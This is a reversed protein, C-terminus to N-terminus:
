RGKINFTPRRSAILEAELARRTRANVDPPFVHYELVLGAKGYEWLWRALGKNDSHEIHKAIRSQLNRSEGIYLVSKSAPDVFLYLGGSMPITSIDMQEVSVIRIDPAPLVQAVREPRLKRLKRLALAAWRYQLPTYGPCLKAAIKDFEAAKSPSCIVDDLTSEDRRELFRIAIESAFQYEEQDRFSTRRSRGLNKLGGRKRQNMLARNFMEATGSVSLRRCQAVFQVNLAPDAVVRDASYGRRTHVFADRILVDNQNVSRSDPGARPLEM